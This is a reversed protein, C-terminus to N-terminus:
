DDKLSMLAAAYGSAIILGFLASIVALITLPMGLTRMQPAAVVLFTLVCQLALWAVVLKIDRNTIKNQMM